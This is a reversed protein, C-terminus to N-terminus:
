YPNIWTVGNMSGDLDKKRNAQRGREPARDEVLTVKGLKLVRESWPRLSAALSSALRGLPNCGVSGFCLLIYPVFSPRRVALMVEM